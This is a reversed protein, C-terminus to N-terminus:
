FMPDWPPLMESKQKYIDLVKQSIFKKNVVIRFMYEDFWKDTFTLYGNEGSNAGWSNEFQWKVPNENKDVEVAILAMGHSSGSDHSQIRQKKTMGFPIDYVAEFDYNDVDLVGFDRRLQKGVDCSAYMAENNKISEICFQKIVENPLNVYHWNEGEEVNRYNEIEYHKWYDRSPDNMLMVYDSLKIDGLVEKMFSQPTYEKNESVTGEKDKFRYEFNVPPEGLNLVLMRYVDGLMEVKRDHIQKNNKGDNKMDRLELAQERLKRNLLKTLWSTNNSSYTEEMAEKPVMGYKEALNVFNIWQGGDDVPYKFYWSVKEDDFGRDSTNLINNLFLNSKEFLDWFYLYIQSFEFSSVNFHNMAVPRFVNLSTFLWCRGSKNQNTIGSVDVRYTFYHDTTGENERNWAINKISNSSLANEMAKTYNDKVFGERIKNLDNQDVSQAMASLSLAMGALILLKKM